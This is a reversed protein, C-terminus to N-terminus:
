LSLETLILVILGSYTSDKGLDSSSPTNYM